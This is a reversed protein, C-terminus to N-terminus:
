PPLIKPLCESVMWMERTWESIREFMVLVVYVWDMNDSKGLVVENSGNAMDHVKTRASPAIVVSPLVRMVVYVIHSCWTQKLAFHRCDCMWKGSRESRYVTYNKVKFYTNSIKTTKGECSKITRKRAKTFLRMDSFARGGCIIKNSFTELLHGTM